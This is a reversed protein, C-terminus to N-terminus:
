VMERLLCHIKNKVRKIFVTWSPSHSTRVNGVPLFRVVEAHEAEERRACVSLWGARFMFTCKKFAKCIGLLLVDRTRENHSLFSLNSNRIKM